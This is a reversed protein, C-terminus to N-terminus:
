DDRSEFAAVHAPNVWIRRNDETTLRAFPPTKFGAEVFQKDVLKDSQAVTVVTGDALRIDTPM